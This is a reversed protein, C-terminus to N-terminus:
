HKWSGPLVGAGANRHAPECKKCIIQNGLSDEGAERRIVAQPASRCRTNGAPGTKQKEVGEKKWQGDRHGLVPADLNTVVFARKVAKADQIKWWKSEKTNNLYGM